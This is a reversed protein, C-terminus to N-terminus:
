ASLRMGEPMFSELSPIAVVEGQRDLSRQGHELV